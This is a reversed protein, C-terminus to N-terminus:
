QIINLGLERETEEIIHMRESESKNKANITREYEYEEGEKEYKYRLFLEGCESNYKVEKYFSRKATASNTSYRTDSSTGERDEIIEHDLRIDHQPVNQSKAAKPAKPAKPITPQEQIGSVFLDLSDMIKDKFVFRAIKELSSLDFTHDFDEGDINGSVHISLADEDSIIIKQTTKPQGFAVSNGVALLLVIYKKM